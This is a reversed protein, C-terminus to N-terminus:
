KDGPPKPKKELDARRAKLEELAENLKATLMDVEEITQPRLNEEAAAHLREVNALQRKLHERLTALAEASHTRYLPLYGTDTSGGGCAIGTVPNCGAMYALRLGGALDTIDTSGGCLVGPYGVRARGFGTDSAGGACQIGDALRVNETDDTAGGCEERQGTPLVNVMLDKIKFAM